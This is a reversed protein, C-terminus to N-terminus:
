LLRTKVQGVLRNAPRRQKGVSSRSVVMRIFDSKNDASSHRPQDDLSVSLINCGCQRVVQFCAIQISAIVSNSHVSVNLAACRKLKASFAMGM